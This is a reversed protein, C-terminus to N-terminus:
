VTGGAALDPAVMPRPDDALGEDDLEESASRRISGAEALALGVEPLYLHLGVALAVGRGGGESEPDVPIERSLVNGRRRGVLDSNESASRTCPIPGPSYNLVASRAPTDKCM